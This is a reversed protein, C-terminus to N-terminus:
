PLRLYSLLEPVVRTLERTAMEGVTKQGLPSLHTNDIKGEKGMPGLKTAQEPGLREAQERTLSYLDLLAIKKEGAVTRVEEVYPVNADQRIKGDTEFNRRVISTVLVAIAGAAKAEEVYRHLIPVIPLRRM